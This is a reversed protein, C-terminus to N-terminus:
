SIMACNPATRAYRSRVCFKDEMQGIKRDQQGIPRTRPCGCVTQQLSRYGDFEPLAKPYSHTADAESLRRGAIHKSIRFDCQRRYVRLPMRKIRQTAECAPCKCILDPFSRNVLLDMRHKAKQVVEESFEAISQM